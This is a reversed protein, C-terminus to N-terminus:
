PNMLPCDTEATTPMKPLLNLSGPDKYMVRISVSASVGRCVFYWSFGKCIDWCLCRVSLSKSGWGKWRQRLESWIKTVLELSLGLFVLRGWTKITSKTPPKPVWGWICSKRTFICYEVQECPFIIPMYAHFNWCWFVQYPLVQGDATLLSAANLANSLCLAEKIEIRACGRSQIKSQRWFWFM